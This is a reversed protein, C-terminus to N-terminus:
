SKEAFWINLDILGKEFLIKQYDELEFPCDLFEKFQEKSDFHLARYIRSVTSNPLTKYKKKSYGGAKSRIKTKIEGNIYFRCYYDDKTEIKFGKSKLKTHLYRLSLRM